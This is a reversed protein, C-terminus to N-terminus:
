GGVPRAAEPSVAPAPVALNPADFTFTRGIHALRESYADLLYVSPTSITIYACYDSPAPIILQLAAMPVRQQETTGSDASPGLVVSRLSASMVGPGSPLKAALLTDQKGRYGKGLPLDLEELRTEGAFFLQEKARYIGEAALFRNDHGTPRVSVILMALSLKDIGQDKEVGVCMGFDVPTEGQETLLPLTRCMQDSVQERESRDADPILEEVVEAWGTATDPDRVKVFADPLNYRFAYPVSRPAPKKLGPPLNM